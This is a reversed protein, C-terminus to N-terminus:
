FACPQALAPNPRLMGPRLLVPPSEPAAEKAEQAAECVNTGTDCSEEELCDECSEDCTSSVDSLIYRERDAKCSAFYM